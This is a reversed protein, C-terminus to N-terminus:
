AGESSLGHDALRKTLRLIRQKLVHNEQELMDVYQALNTDTQVPVVPTVPAIQPSKFYVGMTDGVRWRSECEYVRERLPIELRFFDPLDVVGPGKLCAGTLSINRVQCELAARGIQSYARGIMVSERREGDRREQSGQASFSM